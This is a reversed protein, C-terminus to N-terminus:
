RAMDLMPTYMCALACANMSQSDEETESWIAQCSSTPTINQTVDSANSTAETQFDQVLMDDWTMRPNIMGATMAMMSDRDRITSSDNIWLWLGARPSM